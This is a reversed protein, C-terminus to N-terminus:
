VEQPWAGKAVHVGEGESVASPVDLNGPARYGSSAVSKLCM